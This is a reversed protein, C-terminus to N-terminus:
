FRPPLCKKISHYGDHVVNEYLKSCGVAGAYAAVPEDCDPLSRSGSDLQDLPVISQWQGVPGIARDVAVTWSTWHCSRSGSDLQELPVISPQLVTAYGLLTVSRCRCLRDYVYKCVYVYVYVCTCVCVCVCVCVSARVCARACVCM